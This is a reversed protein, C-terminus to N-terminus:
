IEKGKPNIVRGSKGGSGKLLCVDQITMFQDVERCMDYITLLATQVGTMAEMDVGAKDYTRVTAIVVIRKKEEDFHFTIESKSITPNHYLPVLEATKKVGMIGAIRAAVLIDGKESTGEKCLTYCEENMAIFGRAIAEQYAEKKRTIENVQDESMENLHLLDM